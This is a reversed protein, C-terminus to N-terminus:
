SIVGMQFLRHPGGRLAGLPLRPLPGVDEPRRPDDPGGREGASAEGGAPNYIPRASSSHSPAGYLECIPNHYLCRQMGDRIMPGAGNALLLTVVQRIGSPAFRSIIM